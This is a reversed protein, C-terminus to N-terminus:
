NNIGRVYFFVQIPDLTVIFFVITRNIIGSGAEGCRVCIPNQASADSPTTAGGSLNLNQIYKLLIQKGKKSNIGTMKQTNPNYIKSYM